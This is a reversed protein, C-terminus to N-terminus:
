AQTAEQVAEAAAEAKGGGEATELLLAAAREGSPTLTYNYRRTDPFTGFDIQERLEGEQLLRQIAAEWKDAYGPRHDLTAGRAKLIAIRRESFDSALRRRQDAYAAQELVFGDTESRSAQRRGKSGFLSEFM